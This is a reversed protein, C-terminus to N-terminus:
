PAPKTITISASLTCAQPSTLRISQHKRPIPAVDLVSIGFGLVGTNTYTVENSAVRMDTNKNNNLWIGYSFDPANIVNHTINTYNKNYYNSCNSVKIGGKSQSEITNNHINSKINKNTQIGYNGSKISNNEATLRNNTPSGFFITSAPFSSEAYIGSSESSSSPNKFDQITQNKIISNSSVSYIGYKDFNKFTNNQILIFDACYRVYLGFQTKRAWTNYPFILNDSSNFINNKIVGTFTTTLSNCTIHTFNNDFYNEVLEFTSNNNSLVGTKANKIECEFLKLGGNNNVEFGKWMKPITCGTIIDFISQTCRLSNGSNIIIRADPSMKINSEELDYNGNIIFDGRIELNVGSNGAPLPLLYDSAYRAVTAPECCDFITVNDSFVYGDGCENCLATVTVIYNGPSSYTHIMNHDNTYEISTGDGFDYEFSTAPRGGHQELEITYEAYDVQSDFCMTPNTNVISYNNPCNSNVILPCHLDPQIDGTYYSMYGINFYIYYTGTTSFTYNLIPNPNALTVITADSKYIYDSSYIGGVSTPASPHDYIYFYFYILGVSPAITLNQFEITSFDCLNYTKIFSGQTAGSNNYPYSPDHISVSALGMSSSSSQGWSKSTLLVM